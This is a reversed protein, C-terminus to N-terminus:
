AARFPSDLKIRIAGLMGEGGLDLIDPFIFVLAGVASIPLALVTALM